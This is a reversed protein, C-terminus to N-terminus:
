KNLKLHEVKTTNEPSVDHFVGEAILITVTGDAQLDKVWRGKHRGWEGWDTYERLYTTTLLAWEELEEPRSVKTPASNALGIWDRWEHAEYRDGSVRDTSPSWTAGRYNVRSKIWLWPDTETLTIYGSPPSEAEFTQYKAKNFDKNVEEELYNILFKELACTDM